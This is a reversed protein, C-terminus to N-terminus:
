KPMEMSKQLAALQNAFDGNVVHPENAKGFRNVASNEKARSDREIQDLHARKADAELQAARKYVIARLYNTNALPLERPPKAVLEEMVTIWLAVSNPVAGAADFDVADALALDLLEGVLVCSRKLSLARKAPKYLRLFAIVARALDRPADGLRIALAKADDTLFGAAIPYTCECNPCTIIM